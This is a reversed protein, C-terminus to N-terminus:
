ISPKKQINNEFFEIALEKDLSLRKILEEKSSFKELDRIKKLLFVEIFEGYLDKSLGIIHTEALETNENYTPANGINTIAPYKKRELEVYSIYVGKGIVLSNEGHHINITPFGLDRGEHRGPVVKGYVSVPSICYKLVEEVRGEEALSRLFTSSLVEGNKDKEMPIIKCVMDNDRCLMKLNQVLGSADKGFHFNEGVCVGRCYLTEKLFVSVFEESSMNKFEDDFEKIFLYDIGLTEFLKERKRDPMFERNNKYASLKKDFTLVCSRMGYMKSLKVTEKLLKIHGAHLSSFEGITVFVPEKIFKSVTVM